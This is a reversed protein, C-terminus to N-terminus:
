GKKDFEEILADLWRLRYLRMQAERFENCNSNYWKTFGPHNAILRSDHSMTESSKVGIKSDIIGLTKNRTLFTIENRCYATNLAYCIYRQTSNEIYVRAKRFANAIQKDIVKSM